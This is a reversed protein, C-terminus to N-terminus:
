TSHATICGKIIENLNNNYEKKWLKRQLRALNFAEEQGYKHWSFNKTEQPRSKHYVRYSYYINNKYKKKDLMIGVIGTSKNRKSPIEHFRNTYNLLKKYEPGLIKNRYEIAEILAKMKGGYINDSFSKGSFKLIGIRVFWCKNKDNDIRSIYRFKLSIM